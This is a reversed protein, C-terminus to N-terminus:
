NRQPPVGLGSCNRSKGLLGSRLCGVAPRSFCSTTGMPRGLGAANGLHITGGPCSRDCIGARHPWRGFLRPATKRISGPSAFSKATPRGRIWRAVAGTQVLLRSQSGDRNVLYVEHGVAYAIEKGDPSYAAAHGMLDGLRTASLGTQLAIKWLPWDAQTGVRTGVILEQGDPSIDALQLNNLSISLLTYEGGTVPMRALSQHGGVLALFYIDKGDTLLPTYKARGSASLSAFRVVHPSPISARLLFALTTDM